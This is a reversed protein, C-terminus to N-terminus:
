PAGRHDDVGTSEKNKYFEFDRAVRVSDTDIPIKNWKQDVHSRRSVFKFLLLM